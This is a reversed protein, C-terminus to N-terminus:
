PIEFEIWYTQRDYYNKMLPHVDAEEYIDMLNLQMSYSGSDLPGYTDEWDITIQSVTDNGITIPLQYQSQYEVSDLTPVMALEEAFYLFFYETVLDGIQQGGSQTCNLMISTPTSEIVEFAIGWDERDIRNGADDNYRTYTVADSKYIGMDQILHMKGDPTEYVDYILRLDFDPYRYTFKTLGNKSEFNETCIGEKADLRAYAFIEEVSIDGDRIANELKRNEGGIEIMVDTVDYYTIDEDFNGGLEEKPVTTFDANNDVTLSIHLRGEFDTNQSSKLTEMVFETDPTRQILLPSVVAGVFFALILAIFFLMRKLSNNM